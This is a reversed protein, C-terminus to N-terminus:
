IRWDCREFQELSDSTRRLLAVHNVICLCLFWHVIISEFGDNQVWEKDIEIFRFANAATLNMRRKQLSITSSNNNSKKWRLSFCILVNVIKCTLSFFSCCCCCWDCVNKAGPWWLISRKCRDNRNWIRVNLIEHSWEERERNRIKTQFM